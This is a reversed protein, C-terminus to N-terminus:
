RPGRRGSRGGGPRGPRPGRREQRQERGRRPGFGESARPAGAGGRREAGRSGPGREDHRPVGESRRPGPSGEQRRLGRAGRPPGAGPRREASSERTKARPPPSPRERKEGSGHRLMEVERESLERCAGLPLTEDEFSGIAVRRLKQVPHEIRFFMERIQRTRGEFLEVTWWTNGETERGGAPGRRPKIRCPSTRVGDIVVGRRLTDLAAESPEGKVKVAYTKRCGYRPHSVRQAFEGDDTLLLLGETQFDLRGVPVLAKRFQPPVLDIVTPRGEPDVVTSMFGKPKNLVLYHHHTQPAIRKGDVKISDTAPEAKDGLVAVHGNVTVRGEVILEEVKRRSAVGARALIKQLREASM